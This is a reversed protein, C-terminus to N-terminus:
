VWTDQYLYNTIFRSMFDTPLDLKHNNFFQMMSQTEQERNNNQIDNKTEEM